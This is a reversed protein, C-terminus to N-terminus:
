GQIRGGNYARHLDETLIRHRDELTTAVIYEHSALWTFLGAEAFIRAAMDELAYSHTYFVSTKSFGEYTRMKLLLGAEIPEELFVPRGCWADPITKSEQIQQLVPDDPPIILPDPSWGGAEVAPWTIRTPAEPTKWIPPDWQEAGWIDPDWGNNNTLNEPETLIYGKEPDHALVESPSKRHRDTTALAEDIFAQTLTKMKDSHVQAKSQGSTYAQHLEVLRDLFANTLKSLESNLNPMTKNQEASWFAPM